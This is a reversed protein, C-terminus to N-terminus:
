FAETLLGKDKESIVNVRHKWRKGRPVSRSKKKRWAQDRQMKIWYSSSIGLTEWCNGLNVISVKFKNGEEEFIVVM